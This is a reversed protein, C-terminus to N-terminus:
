RPAEPKNPDPGIAAWDGHDKGGNKGTSGPVERFMPGALADYIVLLNLVGAIVTYVWGLDWRKNGDRQLKNLTIKEPPDNPTGEPPTRQFTGFIPGSEENPDYNIYQVVAPWAAVGIWFQGLFQPRYALAKLPGPLEQGLVAVPPFAKNDSVDPLWVNSWKGMAMGYFFLGYLGLFFLIGKGTRGQYVQGLGPILYSLAAALPDFLPPPLQPTAAPKESKGPPPPPATPQPAPGAPANGPSPPPPVPLASAMLLIEGPIFSRLGVRRTM